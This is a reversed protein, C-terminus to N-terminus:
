LAGKNTAAKAAQLEKKLAEVEIEYKQQIAKLLHLTKVADVDTKFEMFDIETKWPTMDPRRSETAAEVLQEINCLAELAIDGPQLQCWRWIADLAKRYTDKQEKLEHPCKLEHATICEPKMCVHISVGFDIRCDSCAMQTDNGCVHCPSLTSESKKM